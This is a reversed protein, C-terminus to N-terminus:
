ILIDGQQVLIKLANLIIKQANTVEQLIINDMSLIEEIVACAQRGSMNM